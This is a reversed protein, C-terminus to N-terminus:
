TPEGAVIDAAKEGIMMTSAYTNASPITPMVSADAIRLGDVGVVRLHQDVVRLADGPPGMRSTGVFHCAATGTAACFELMQRDSSPMTEPMIPSALFRAMGEDALLGNMIRMGSVVAVQDEPEALYNPQIVPDVFVDNSRARVHGRSQPRHQWWAGTVGSGTDLRSGLPAGFSGPIFMCQLDPRPVNPGSRCSLFIHSPSLALVSPRGLLWKLAEGALRAGGALQNLTVVDQRARSVIRSVFHDCLNEGVGPLHQVLHGGLQLTLDGDGIGSVQLLRPTNIAGCCLIVERRARVTAEEGGRRHVYTVGVARREGFVIRVATAQNQLSINGCRLAPRLMTVAPTIRWGRDVTQQITAVGEQTEGNYDPNRQWGAREAAAIFADSLTHSWNVDRVVIPGARGRLEDDGSGVRTETRRFYPLLDRYSWGQLGLSAWDDFDQAQGRVYIMGNISSSGGTVRGQWIPLRRGGLLPESEFGWTVRSDGLARVYGAPVRTDLRQDGPGAELVCVTVAPDQGLRAAVVSGATGAGVVVYDFVEADKLSHRGLSIHGRRM